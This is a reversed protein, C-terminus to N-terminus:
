NGLQRLLIAAGMGLSVAGLVAKKLLGRDKTKPNIGGKKQYSINANAIRYSLVQNQSNVDNQRVIGSLSMEHVEGNVETLRNGEVLLDGSPTVEKVQVSIFGELLQRQNALNRQDSGYNVNAEAGFTPEFPLFNSAVAGETGGNASTSLQTDSTSSGSTSERLIVTIVDGIQKAKVDTYLSSQAATLAPM